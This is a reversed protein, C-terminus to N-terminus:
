APGVGPTPEDLGSHGWPGEDNAMQRLLDGTSSVGLKRLINRRHVEVTRPSRRLMEAIEKTTKGGVVQSLVFKETETLVGDVYPSDTSSKNLTREVTTLWWEEKLPREVCEHAGARTASIATPVNGKNIVAFRLMRPYIQGWRTLLQLGTEPKDDLGIILPGSSWAGHAEPCEQATALWLIRLNHQRLYDELRQRIPCSENVVYVCKVTAGAM